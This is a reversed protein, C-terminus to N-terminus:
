KSDIFATVDEAKKGDMFQEGIKQAIRRWDRARMPLAHQDSRLWQRATDRKQYAMEAIESLSLGFCLKVTEIRRRALKPNLKGLELPQRTSGEKRMALAEVLDDSTWGRVEKVM